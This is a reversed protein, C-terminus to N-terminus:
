KCDKQLAEKEKPLLPEPGMPGASDNSLIGLAGRRKMLVKRAAMGSLINDIADQLACIHSEPFVHSEFSPNIDRIIVVDDLSLETKEGKYKLVIKKVIGTLNTQKWLRKTEEIDVMSPPINWVHSADINRTFGTPKIYLQLYFGFIQLFIYGQAEFDEQSQIPNPKNLLARIKAANEGTAEKEKSKGKTNMIYTKGTIFAQGKKNIVANLPACKRYAKVCSKHYSYTFQVDKGSDVGSGDVGFIWFDRDPMLGSADIGRYDNSSVATSDVRMPEAKSVVELSKAAQLDRGVILNGITKARQLLNM